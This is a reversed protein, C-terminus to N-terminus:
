PTEQRTFLLAKSDRDILRWAPDIALQAALATEPNVLMANIRHKAALERWRPKGQILETYEGALQEGYYNHRGDLFVRQRPYLKYILYDGWEDSAFVRSSTLLQANREVLKAPALEPSVDTPFQGWPLPLMLMGAFVIVWLSNWRFQPQKEAGLEEVIRAVSNEPQSAAWPLLLETLRLAIYPTAALTFLTVHRVSVLSCYALFVIWLTDAFHRRELLRGTVWLGLFLLVMFHLYYENRFSPSRFELSFDRLWGASMTELLHSHLHAGYPNILSAALCALGVLSYRSAAKWRMELISGLALLGLCAFLIFFGAHLNAWLATLPALLWIAPSQQERDRAIMWIAIVLFLQTFIHPRALFHLYLASTASFTLPLAILCNAGSWIMFRLLITITAAIVLGSALAVGRLGWERHLASFVVGSLWEFAYWQEGERSYAFTDTKPAAGESLVRDGVRIHVGTDGDLVLRQWGAGAVFLWLILAVFFIDAMSPTLLRRGLSM